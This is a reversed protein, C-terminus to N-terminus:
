KLESEIAAQIAAYDLPNAIMKDNVMITPTLQVNFKNVLSIDQNVADATADAKITDLFKQEDLEPIAAKAIELMSDESVWTDDHNQPQADYLAKHFTWYQDPHLQLITESALSAMRSEEGHFLVNVHSFKVKGTDVFEKKLEPWLSEGWAKCTPCKFDGFEVVTVAANEDGMVPQGEISPAEGMKKDTNEKKEQLQNVAFLAVILAVVIATYVVFSRSGKKKKNM